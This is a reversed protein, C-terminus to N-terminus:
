WSGKEAFGAPAIQGLGYENVSSKLVTICYLAPIKYLQQISKASAQEWVLVGGATAVVGSRAGAGAAGERVWGQEEGPSSSPTVGASTVEDDNEEGVGREAEERDLPLLEWRLRPGALAGRERRDNLPVAGTLGGDRSARGRGALRATGAAASGRASTVDRQTM